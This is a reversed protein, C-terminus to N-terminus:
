PTTELIACGYKLERELQPSYVYNVGTLASPRTGQNAAPTLYSAEHLLVPQRKTKSYVYLKVYEIHQADGIVVAKFRFRGNIEIPPVSYPDAVPSFDRVMISGGQDIQCRLLPAAHLATPLWCCALLGMACAARLGNASRRRATNSAVSLTRLKQEGSYDHARLRVRALM